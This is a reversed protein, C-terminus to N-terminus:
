PRILWEPAGIPDLWVERLIPHPESEDNPSVETGRPYAKEGRWLERLLQAVHPVRRAVHDNWMAVIFDLACNHSSLFYEEHSLSAAPNIQVTVILLM